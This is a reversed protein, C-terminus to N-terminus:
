SPHATSPAQRWAPLTCGHATGWRWCQRSRARHVEMAPRFCLPPLPLGALSRCGRDIRQLHESCCATPALSPSTLSSALKQWWPETWVLRPRGFSIWLGIACWKPPADAQAFSGGYRYRGACPQAPIVVREGIHVCGVWEFHPVVRRSRHPASRPWSQSRNPHHKRDLVPTNEIWARIPARISTYRQIPVIRGYYTDICALGTTDSRPRRICGGAGRYM